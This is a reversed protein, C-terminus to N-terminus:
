PMTICIPENTASFNATACVKEQIRRSQRGGDMWKGGGDDDDDSM